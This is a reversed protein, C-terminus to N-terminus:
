DTYDASPAPQEDAALALAVIRGPEFLRMFSAVAARRTVTGLDPRFLVEEAYSGIDSVAWAYRYYTLALPDLASEGYGHLFLEEERPGVIARNIGGGVAFMLDRERPALVTDDWDVIWLQGGADLMVNNTHIDAHCLVFPPAKRALLRGLEEARVVVSRITERRLRWFRALEQAAPDTLRRKRIHAEV